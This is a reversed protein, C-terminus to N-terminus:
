SMSTPIYFMLYSQNECINWPFKFSSTPEGVTTTYMHEYLYKESM